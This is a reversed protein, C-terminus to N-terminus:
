VGSEGEGGESERVGGRAMKDHEGSDHLPHKLNFIRESQIAAPTDSSYLTIDVRGRVDQKAADQVAPTGIM